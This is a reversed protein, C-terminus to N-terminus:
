LKSERVWEPDREPENECMRAWESENQSERKTVNAFMIKLKSFLYLPLFYLSFSSIYLTFREGNGWEREMKEYGSLAALIRCTTCGQCLKYHLICYMARHIICLAVYHVAYLTHHSRGCRRNRRDAVLRPSWNRPAPWRDDPSHEGAGVDVFPESRQPGVMGDDAQRTSCTTASVCICLCLCLGAIGPYRDRQLAWLKIQSVDARACQWRGIDLSSILM